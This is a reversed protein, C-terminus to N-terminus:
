LKDVAPAKAPISVDFACQGAKGNSSVVAVCKLVYAADDKGSPLRAAVSAVVPRGGAPARVELVRDSVQVGEPPTVWIRVPQGDDVAGGPFLAIVVNVLGPVKPNAARIIGSDVKMSVSDVGKPPAVATQACAKFSDSPAAIEIPWPMSELTAGEVARMAEVIWGCSNAPKDSPAAYQLLRRTTVENKPDLRAAVSWADFSKRLDGAERTASDFRMRYACGLRFAAMGDTPTKTLALEYADIAEAMLVPAPDFLCADGHEIYEFSERAESAIRKTHKFNPLEKLPPRVQVRDYAFKKNVFGEMLGDPSRAIHRVIGYEDVCVARAMRRADAINLSDHYAPFSIHKWKVFLAARDLYQDHVVGVFVADDKALGKAFKEWAPLQALSEADWAALHLMIVKKGRLMDLVFPDGGGVAKLAYYPHATNKQITPHPPEARLRSVAVANVIVIVGIVWYPFRHGVKGIRRGFSVRFDAQGNCM